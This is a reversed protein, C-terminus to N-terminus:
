DFIRLYVDVWIRASIIVLLIIFGLRLNGLSLKSNVYTGLKAGPLAGLITFVSLWLPVQGTLLKGILGASVAFFTMALSSAISRRLSVRMLKNLIPVTIFGGGVGVMGSMLGEPFFIGLIKYKLRNKEGNEESDTSNLLMLIVAVTSMSGFIFLLLTDPSWKSLIGGILGGSAVLGGGWIVITKDILKGKKYVIVGTFSSVLGQVLSVAMVQKIDIPSLGLLQPGYLLFPLTVVAGSIGFLGSLWGGLFTLIVVTLILFIDM